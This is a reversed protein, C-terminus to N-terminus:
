DFYIEFLFGLVKVKFWQGGLVEFEEIIWVWVEELSQVFDIYFNVFVESFLMFDMLFELFEIFGSSWENLVKVMVVDISYWDIFDM